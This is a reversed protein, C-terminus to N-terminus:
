GWMEQLRIATATTHADALLAESNVVPSTSLLSAEHMPGLLAL